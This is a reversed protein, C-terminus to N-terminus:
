HRVYYVISTHENENFAIICVGIKQKSIQIHVEVHGGTVWM